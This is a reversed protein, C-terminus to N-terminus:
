KKQIEEHFYWHTICTRIYGYICCFMFIFFLKSIADCSNWEVHWENVLAYEGEILYKLCKSNKREKSKSLNIAMKSLPLKHYNLKTSWKAEQHQSFGLEERKKKEKILESKGRVRQGEKEKEKEKEKKRREM